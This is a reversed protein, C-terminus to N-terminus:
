YPPLVQVLDTEGTCLPPKDCTRPLAVTVSNVGIDALQWSVGGGWKLHGEGIVGVVIPNGPSQLAAAIHTAFSRDWVEQARVFRYFEPSMPDASQRGPPGGGTLQHIFKRYPKASPRAPTLGERDDEPVAEWGGKGVQRVLERNCNLGRMPTGTERCFRFLPLYLEPPFGWVESWDTRNLLAAEDMDGAVWEALIPDCWAPFMEFAMILPRHALLGAAVHMQWRHIDARDHYEGLLVVDSLALHSLADAQTMRVDNGPRYWYGLSM